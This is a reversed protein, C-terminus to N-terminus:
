RKGKAIEYLEFDEKHLEKCRNIFIKNRVITKRFSLYASDTMVNRKPTNNNCIKTLEPVSIFNRLIKITDQLWTEQFGIYSFRDVSGGMLMSMWNRRYDLEIYDWIKMEKPIHSLARAYWYCSLLWSVPERMFTIRPTDEWIGDFFTVPVHNHVCEKNGTESYGELEKQFKEAPNDSSYFWSNPNYILPNHKMNGIFHGITSDPFVQHLISGFTSSGTRPMKISILEINELM